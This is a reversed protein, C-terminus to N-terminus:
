YLYVAALLWAALLYWDFESSLPVADAGARYALYFTHALLGAAGFGLMVAGRFGSRFWLRSAELAWAVAYSAAFCFITVRSLM